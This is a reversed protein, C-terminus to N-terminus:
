PLRKAMEVLEKEKEPCYKQIYKFCSRGGVKFESCLYPRKKSDHYVLCKGDHLYQCPTEIQVRKGVIKVGQHISIWKLIDPTKFGVPLEIERCCAGGCFACMAQQIKKIRDNNPTNEMCFILPLM